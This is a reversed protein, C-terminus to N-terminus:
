SNQLSPEIHFNKPSKGYLKSFIKAFPDAPNFIAFEASGWTFGYSIIFM